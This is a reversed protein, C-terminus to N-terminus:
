SVVATKTRRPVSALTVAGAVFLALLLRAMLRAQPTPPIPHMMKVTSFLLASAVEFTVAGAVGGVLGALAFQPWTSRGRGHGIAFSLGGATGIAAWVGANVLMPFLMGDPDFSGDKRGYWFAWFAPVFARAAIAGTLGGIVLGALGAKVSVRGASGALGLCLGLSAGALGFAVVSNKTGANAVAAGDSVSTASGGMAVVQRSVPPFYEHFAEGGLWGLVGAILGAILGILLTREPRLADPEGEIGAPPHGQFGAAM